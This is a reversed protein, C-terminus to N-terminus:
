LAKHRKKTFVVGKGVNHLFPHFAMQPSNKIHTTPSPASSQKMATPCVPSLRGLVWGVLRHPNGVDSANKNVLM